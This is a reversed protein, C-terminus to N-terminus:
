GATGPMAAGRRTRWAPCKVFGHRPIWVGTALCAQTVGPNRPVSGCSLVGLEARASAMRSTPLESCTLRSERGSRLWRSVRHTSVSGLVHAVLDGIIQPQRCSRRLPAAALLREPETRGERRADYRMASTSTQAQIQGAAYNGLPRLRAPERVAARPSGTLSRTRGTCPWLGRECNLLPEVRTAGATTWWSARPMRFM